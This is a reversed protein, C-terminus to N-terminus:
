SVAPRNKTRWETYTYILSFMCIPDNHTPYKTSLTTRPCNKRRSNRRDTNERINWVLWCMLVLRVLFALPRLRPGELVFASQKSLPSCHVSCYQWTTLRRPKAGLTKVDATWTLRGMQMYASSVRITCASEPESESESLRFLFSSIMGTFRRVWATKIAGGVFSMRHASQRWNESDSDSGSDAQV